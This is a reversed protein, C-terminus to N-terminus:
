VTLTWNVTAGGGGSKERTGAGTERTTVTPEDLEDKILAVLMLPKVPFTASVTVRKGEIVLPGVPCNDGLVRAKDALVMRPEVNVISVVFLVGVPM